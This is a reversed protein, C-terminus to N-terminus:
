MHGQILYFTYLQRFLDLSVLFMIILILWRADKNAQPLNNHTVEKYNM